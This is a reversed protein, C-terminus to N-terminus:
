KPKALDLCLLHDESRLYLRGRSLVPAAWAPYHIEPFSTRSIEEFKEPNIKVLALTGREGLM